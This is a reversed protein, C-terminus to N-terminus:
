GQHMTPLSITPPGDIIILTNDSYLLKYEHSNDQDNLTIYLSLPKSEELQRVRSLPLIQLAHVTNGIKLSNSYHILMKM